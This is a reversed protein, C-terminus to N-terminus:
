AVRISLQSDGVCECSAMKVVGSKKNSVVVGAFGCDSCLYSKFSPTSIGYRAWGSSKSFVKKVLSTKEAHRGM